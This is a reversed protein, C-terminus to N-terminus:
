WRVKFGTVVFNKDTWREVKFLSKDPRDIQHYSDDEAIKVALASLFSDVSTYIPSIPPVVPYVLPPLVPFPRYPITLGTFYEEVYYIENPYNGAINEVAAIESNLDDVQANFQILYDNYRDIRANALDTLRDFERNAWDVDSVDYFPTLPPGEIWDKIGENKADIQELRRGNKDVVDSYEALWEYLDFLAYTEALYDEYWSYDNSVAFKAPILGIRKGKELYVFQLREDATEIDIDSPVISLFVVDRDSTRIAVCADLNGVAGLRSEITVIGAEIGSEILKDRLNAVAEKDSQNKATHISVDDLFSYVIALVDTYKSPAVPAPAEEEEEEAPPTPAQEPETPPAGEPAPAPAEEPPLEEVAPAGCAGLVLLVTVLLVAIILTKRM